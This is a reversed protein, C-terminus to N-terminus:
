NRMSSKPLNLWIGGERKRLAEGLQHRGGPSLAFGGRQALQLVSDEDKLFVRKPLTTKLDEELFQCYWGQRFRFSM